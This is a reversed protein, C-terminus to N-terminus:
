PPIRIQAIGGRDAVYVSRGDPSAALAGALEGNTGRLRHCAGAACGRLDSVALAGDAASRTVEVVTGAGHHEL